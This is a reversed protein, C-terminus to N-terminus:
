ATVGAYRQAMAAFVAGVDQGRTVDVCFRKVGPSAPSIRAQVDAATATEPDLGCLACVLLWQASEHSICPMM